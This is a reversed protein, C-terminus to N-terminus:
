RVPDSHSNNRHNSQWASALAIVTWFVVVVEDDQFYCQAIGAIFFALCGCLLLATRYDSPRGTHASLLMRQIILYVLGLFSLGAPIGGIVSLHLVDNHAHGDPTNKFFYLLDPHALLYQDRWALTAAKFNGAGVGLIPHAEILRLSGTWLIPRFYDTHRQVLIAQLQVKIEQVFPFLVWILVAGVLLGCLIMTWLLRRRQGFITRMWPGLRGSVQHLVIWALVPLCFLFGLQASRSGNALLVLVGALSLAVLAVARLRARNTDWGALRIAGVTFPLILILLGAYTLRTNMFGIPRYFQLGGLLGLPHQPRNGASMFDGAGRIIQGLRHEFFMAMLGSLILAIILAWLGFMLLQRNREKRRTLDYVIWGYAMLAFDSWENSVANRVAALPDHLLAQIATSLIIIGYLLLGMRFVPPIKQVISRLAYSDPQRPNRIWAYIW